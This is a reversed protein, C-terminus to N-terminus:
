HLDLSGTSITQNRPELFDFVFVFFFSLGPDCISIHMAFLFSIDKNFALAQLMEAALWAFFLGEIQWTWCADEWEDM